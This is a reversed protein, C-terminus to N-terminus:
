HCQYLEAKFVWTWFREGNEKHGSEDVNVTKEFPIRDLLEEYPMQLSHGVKEVVKRLYSRSVKISTIDRIFKRITSFSAHCVHKMYAVLATMREKFLGAKIVEPPFPGYHIKQCVECWMPYSIHEEKVIPIEQIEVQQIVKPKQNDMPEMLGECHPCLTETYDYFENIEEKPFPPREHKPHGQQGGISRKGKKKKKQSKSKPKTIDDSSPPKHSNSSNKSLKAVQNELETVREILAEITSILQCLTDEIVQPSQRSIKRAEERTIM